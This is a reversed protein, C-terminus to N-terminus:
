LVISGCGCVNFMLLLLFATAANGRPPNQPCGDAERIGYNVDCKETSSLHRGM